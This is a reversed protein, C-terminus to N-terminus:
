GNLEMLIRLGELTLHEDTFEINRSEGTIIGSLGGTSIVSPDTGMSERIRDILGDVLSVYGYVIGSQMSEVTNKGIVNDPKIIEVFPLKSAKASLAESSILIGPVIAGGIYEGKESICDFTTATGFDVVISSSRFKDYAAVSNVIRDAGVEDPNDYIISLNTKISSSVVLPKTNFTNEIDRCITNQIEPVVCSIISSNIHGSKINNKCLFVEIVSAAENPNLSKNTETNLVAILKDDKFVGLITGTNGVDVALLM